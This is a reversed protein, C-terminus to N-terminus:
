NRLTAPRGPGRPRPGGFLGDAPPEVAIPVELVGELEDLLAHLAKLKEAGFRETIQAYTVESTAGAAEILMRGSPSISILGRRADTESVSRVILERADLDKLIRSLSPALLYTAKALELVEITEVTTLARLVRWQQETIGYSQLSPRFQRMVAERARLLAMPLSRNFSRLRGRAAPTSPPSLDQSM